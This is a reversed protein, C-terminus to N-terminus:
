VAYWDTATLDEHRAIWGCFGANRYWGNITPVKVVVAEDSLDIASLDVGDVPYGPRRMAGAVPADPGLGMAVRGVSNLFIYLEPDTWGQRRVGRVGGALAALAGNFDVLELEGSM